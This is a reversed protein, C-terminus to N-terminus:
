RTSFRESCLKRQVVLFANDEKSGAVVEYGDPKDLAKDKVLIRRFLFANGYKEYASKMIGILRKEKAKRYKANLRSKMMLENGTWIVERETWPVDNDFSVRAYSGNGFVDGVALVDVPVQSAIKKDQYAEMTEINFKGNGTLIFDFYDDRLIKKSANQVRRNIDLDKCFLADADNSDIKHNRVAHLWMDIRDIGTRVVSNFEQEKDSSLDRSIVLCISRLDSIAAEVKAIDNLSEVNLIALCFSILNKDGQFKQYENELDGFFEILKDADKIHQNEKM